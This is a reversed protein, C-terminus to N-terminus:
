VSRQCSDVAKGSHSLSLNRNTVLPLPSSLLPSIRFPNREANNKSVGPPRSVFASNTIPSRTPALADQQRGFHSRRPRDRPPM